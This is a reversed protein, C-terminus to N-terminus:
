SKRPDWKVESVDSFWDSPIESRRLRVLDFGVSTPTARESLNWNDQAPGFDIFPADVPAILGSDRLFYMERRNTDNDHYRYEKLVAIGALHRFVSASASYEVLKNIVQQLKEVAEQQRVVQQQTREQSTQLEDMKAYAGKLGFGFERVRPLAQVLIVAAAAVVAVTLLQTPNTAGLGLFVASGVFVLAFLATLALEIYRPLATGREDTSMRLRNDAIM